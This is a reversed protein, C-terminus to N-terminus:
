RIARRDSKALFRTPPFLVRPPPFLKVWVTGLGYRFVFSVTSNNKMVFRSNQRNYEMIELKKTIINECFVSPMCCALPKIGRLEIFYGEFIRKM